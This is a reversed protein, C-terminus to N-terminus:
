LSITAVAALCYFWGVQGSAGWLGMASGFLFMPLAVAVGALAMRGGTELQREGEAKVAFKSLYAATAALLSLLVTMVIPLVLHLAAIVVSIVVMPVAIRPWEPAILRNSSDRGFLFTSGATEVPAVSM